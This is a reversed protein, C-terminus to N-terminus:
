PLRLVQGPQIDDGGAESELQAMVPRPDSNGALRAAIGWLTDGRHVVYESGAVLSGGHAAGPVALSNGGTGGWPLALLVLMVMAALLLVIRRRRV